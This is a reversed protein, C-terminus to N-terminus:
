NRLQLLATEAEAALEDQGAEKLVQSGDRGTELCVQAEAATVMQRQLHHQWVAASVLIFDEMKDIRKIAQIRRRLGADTMTHLRCLSQCMVACLHLLRPTAGTASRAIPCALLVLAMCKLTYTRRPRCRHENHQRLAGVDSGQSPGRQHRVTPIHFAEGDGDEDESHDKAHDEDLAAAAKDAQRAVRRSQRLM